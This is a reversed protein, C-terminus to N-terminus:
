WGMEDYDSDDSIATPTEAVAVTETAAPEEYSDRGIFELREDEDM